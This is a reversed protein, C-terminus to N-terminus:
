ALPLGPSRAQCAHDHLEILTAAKPHVTGSGLSDLFTCAAYHHAKQEYTDIWAQRQPRQLPQVPWIGPRPKLHSPIGIRWPKATLRARFCNQNQCMRAYVPDVDVAEFFARVSPDSPPVPSHTVLLRLGAPTRYLHVNWEPHRKLFAALRTRTAAEAGGAARLKASRLAQALPISGFAAVLAAVLALPWSQFWLGVVAALILGAGLPVLLSALPIRNPEFDVDAFVIDPTNLCRAGYSNRTIVADGHRAIVEERIPVGTAGNYAAKRERRAVKQGALLTHLAEEARVEAMAQAEAESTDSWGFRRVTVQTGDRRSQRRAEAWHNPVIMSLAAVSANILSEDWGGARAAAL